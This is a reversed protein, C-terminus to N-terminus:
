SQFVPYSPAAVLRLVSQVGFPFPKIQRVNATISFLDTTASFDPVELTKATPGAPADIWKAEFEHGLITAFRGYEYTGRRKAKLMVEYFSLLPGACILVVFTVAVLEISRFSNMAQKLHVVQNAIGGAVIIGISFAFPLYSRLSTELFSLGAMLDPHSPVLRLDLLSVSRLFLAWLGINWIWRLVLYVLLPVGFFVYYAGALSLGGPIQNGSCWKPLYGGHSISAISAAALGYVFLALFLHTLRRKRRREFLSFNDEFLRLQEPTILENTLFLRAIHFRRQIISPEGVILLPIALLIRSQAAIDFLFARFYYSGQTM